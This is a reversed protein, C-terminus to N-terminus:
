LITFTRGMYTKEHYIEEKLLDLFNMTSYTNMIPGSGIVVMNQDVIIKLIRM